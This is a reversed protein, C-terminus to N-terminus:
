DVIAAAAAEEIGAAAMGALLLSVKETDLYAHIATAKGWRLRIWHAGENEYATGDAGRGRDVWQVAVATNWPWGRVAVDEVEFEIEPILRYLREFWAEMAGRSHREGGLANDGPFVHHVDDAIDGVTAQWDEQSLDAFIGRAKRKVIARYIV